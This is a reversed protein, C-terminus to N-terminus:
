VIITFNSDILINSETFHLGTALYLAGPYFFVTGPKPYQKEM